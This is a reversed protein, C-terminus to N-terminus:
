IELLSNYSSQCPHLTIIDTILYCTTYKRLRDCASCRRPDCYGVCCKLWIECVAPSRKTQGQRGSVVAGAAKCLHWEPMLISSQLELLKAFINCQHIESNWTQLFIHATCLCQEGANSTLTNKHKTSPANYNIVLSIYCLLTSPANYCKIISM